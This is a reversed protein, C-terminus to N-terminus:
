VQSTTSYNFKSASLKPSHLLQILSPFIPLCSTDWSEFTHLPYWKLNLIMYMFTLPAFLLYKPLRESMFCLRIRLLNYTKIWSIDSSPKLSINSVTENIQINPTSHTCNNCNTSLMLKIHFLYISSEATIKKPQKPFISKM